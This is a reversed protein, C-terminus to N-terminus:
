SPDMVRVDARSDDTECVAGSRGPRCCPRRRCGRRGNAMADTATPMRAADAAPPIATAPQVDWVTPTCETLEGIVEGGVVEAGLVEGVAITAGDVAGDAVADAVGVADAVAVGVAIVVPVGVADGVAVAVPVGVAVAVADAVAVGVAIM